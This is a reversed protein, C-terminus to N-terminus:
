TQRNHIHPKQHPPEYDMTVSADEQQLQDDDDEDQKPHAESQDPGNEQKNHEVYVVVM